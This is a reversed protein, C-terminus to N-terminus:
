PLSLMAPRSHLGTVRQYLVTAGAIAGSTALLLAALWVGGDFPKVLSAIVALVASPALFLFLAERDRLLYAIVISPVAVFLIAPVATTGTPLALFAGSGWAFGAFLLIASLDKAFDKLAPREFPRQMAHRYALLMAGAVAALFGCWALQPGPSMDVSLGLTVVGLIPLAIGAYLSRGLLNALRATEEAEAHLSKLKAISGFRDDAKHFAEVVHPTSQMIAVM